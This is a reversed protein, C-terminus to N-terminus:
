EPVCAECDICDVADIYLMSDDQYFCDCPCVVVCDTYKCDRCPECVVYAMLRETSSTIPCQWRLSGRAAAVGFQSDRSERAIGAGWRLTPLRPCRSPSARLDIHGRLTTPRDVTPRTNPSKTVACRATCRRRSSALSPPRGPRGTFGVTVGGCPRSLQAGNSNLSRWEM